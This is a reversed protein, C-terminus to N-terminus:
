PLGSVKRAVKGLPSTYVGHIRQATNVLDLIKKVQKHGNEVPNDEVLKDYQQELNMRTIVDQLDKNSLVRTGHTGIKEKQKDVNKVDESDAKRPAAKHASPTGTGAKRVGWKMGKVGSQEIETDGISVIHGTADYKVPINFSDESGDNMASHTVDEVKVNWFGNESTTISYKKTGSANTGQEAAAKQLNKVFADNHEKYYKRRLPSDLNFDKNKYQPKNNIREVDHDNTARAASNHIKITVNYSKSNKEFNKDLKAIKSTKAAEGEHGHDKRVGWKMGKVGSQEVDDDFFDLEGVHQLIYEVTLPGVHEVSASRGM